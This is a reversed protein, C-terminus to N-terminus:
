RNINSLINALLPSTDEPIEIKKDPIKEEINNLIQKTEEKVTQQINQNNYIPRSVYTQQEISNLKNLITTINQDRQSNMENLLEERIQSKIENINESNIKLEKLLETKLKNIDLKENEYNNPKKNIFEYGNIILKIIAASENIKGNSDKYSQIYKIIDKHNKDDLKVAKLM